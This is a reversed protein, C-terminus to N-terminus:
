FKELSKLKENSLLNRSLKNGFKDDIVNNKLLVDGHNYSLAFYHNKVKILLSCKFQYNKLKIKKQSILNIDDM